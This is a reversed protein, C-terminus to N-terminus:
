GLSDVGDFIEFEKDMNVWSTKGSKLRIKAWWEKNGDQLETAPCDELCGKGNARKAYPVDFSDHYMGNFWVAEAGEGRYAYTFILDGRKLGDQPQDRDM